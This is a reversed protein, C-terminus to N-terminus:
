SPFSYSYAPFLTTTGAGWAVYAPLLSEKSDIVPSRLLEFIGGRNLPTCQLFKIKNAQKGEVQRDPIGQTEGKTQDGSFTNKFKEPAWSDIGFFRNRWGIYGSSSNKFL